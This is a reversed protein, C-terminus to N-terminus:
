NKRRARLVMGIIFSLGAITVIAWFKGQTGLFLAGIGFIGCLLYILGLVQRESLGFKLMRHHLHVAKRYKDWEGGKWPAQRNYLRHIIVYVADLIPFGLILFATAIKGGSFIALVALLLGFFMSGSDGIIIKPPYFDFIWFGFAIMAVILALTAVEPQNVVESISLFFLTLGGIVTIGSTMGPIGDLWNMTNTILLIWAITFLGSLAMVTVTTEGFQFIFKIQDLAIYGGFPNTITEVGIGSVIMILAVLVQVVLRFWPPLDMRDDIFSVFVLIGAGILLGILKITPGFFILALALFVIFLIIGGPYPVAKRKLGYKEPRDMLGLKPFVKLAILVSLITLSLASIAPLFYNM